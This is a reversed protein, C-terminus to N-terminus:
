EGALAAIPSARGYRDEMMDRLIRADCARVFLSRDFEPDTREFREAYRMVVSAWRALAVPDDTLPQVARLRQAIPWYKTWSTSLTVM